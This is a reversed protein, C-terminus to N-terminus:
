ILKLKSIPKIGAQAAIRSQPSSNPIHFGNSQIWYYPTRNKAKLSNIKPAHAHLWDKLWQLKRLVVRVDGTNASHVEVFFVESKYSFAYDWRNLAPYKRAVCDDINLSGQCQKTDSLEIKSSHRGLAKLGNQYCTKVDDTGEVAEKFTLPQVAKKKSMQYQM